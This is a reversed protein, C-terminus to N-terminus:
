KGCGTVTPILVNLFLFNQQIGSMIKLIFIVTKKEERERERVKKLHDFHAIVNKETDVRKNEYSIDSLKRQGPLTRDM